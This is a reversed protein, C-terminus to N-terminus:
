MRKGNGNIKMDADKRRKHTKNMASMSEIGWFLASLLLMVVWSFDIIHVAWWWHQVGVGCSAFEFVWEGHEGKKNDFYASLFGAHGSYDGMMSRLTIERIHPSSEIRTCSSTNTVPNRTISYPRNPFRHARWSRPEPPPPPPDRPPPAPSTRDDITLPNAPSTEMILPIPAPDIPTPPPPPPPWHAEERKVADVSCDDYVGQQRVFHMVDCGEHDHGNLVIGRRGMGQGAAFQNDSMGFMGQLVTKSSHESLMNQEKIGSGEGFYDFFPSDVCIGPEKELPIHTLLVTAHTKDEVPRSSTIIHNMFSYTETQLEHNWAPADINMSNLIVLRLAPPTDSSETANPDPPLTFWIDWNVSGFAKEFRAVRGVDLDGAYGVDHNGAINIVRKAWEKDAGLVETTGGWLPRRLPKHEDAPPEETVQHTDQEGKEQEENSGENDVDDPNAEEITDVNHETHDVIVEEMRDADAEEIKDMNADEIKEADVEQVRDAGNHEIDDGDNQELSDTHNSESTDANTIESEDTDEQVVKDETRKVVLNDNHVVDPGDNFIPGDDNNDNHVTEAEEAIVEVLTEAVAEEEAEGRAGQLVELVDELVVRNGEVEGDEEHAEEKEGGEDQAEEKEGLKDEGDNQQAEQLEEVKKEFIGDPVMGMGRMVVGWFRGGRKEFEGDTVWQSGLLDGLVAVHTPASWWRTMAVIHALYRDNGWLDVAKRKGKIWVWSDRKVGGAADKLVGWKGQPFSAYQIDQVFFELSKFVRAHPDPLSSDGELQPDGLALLRFPATPDPFACSHLYPYLLYLWTTSLLALPTLLAFLLLPITTPRM